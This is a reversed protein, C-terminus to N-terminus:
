SARSARWRQQSDRQCIRCRRGSVTVSTNEESYPHGKPCHTKNANADRGRAVRDRMNQVADGLYLHGPRVCSPNDCHHLVFLRQDFMGFHIMASVRHARFTKGSVDFNGYGKVGRAGLWEWCGQEQVDVKAWFRDLVSTM